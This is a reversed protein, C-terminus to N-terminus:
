IKRAKEQKKANKEEECCEKHSRFVNCKIFIPNLDSKLHCTALSNIRSFDNCCHLELSFAFSFYNFATHM